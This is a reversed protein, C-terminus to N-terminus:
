FEIIAFVRQLRETDPEYNYAVQRLYELAMLREEPTKSLWYSKEDSEDDLSAVSVFSKDLKFIKEDMKMM